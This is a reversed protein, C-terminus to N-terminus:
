FKDKGVEPPVDQHPIPMFAPVGWLNCGKGGINEFKKQLGRKHFLVSLKNTAASPSRFQQRGLYSKFDSLRFWTIGEETWPKGLTLEKKARAQVPGTLWRELQEWIQGEDSSDVPADIEISGALAAGVFETWADQKPEAPMQNIVEMCRKQFLRPAQLEETSLELTRGDTTDWFWVPPDVMLKRLQGMRPFSESKSEAAQDDNGARGVGYARLRCVSGECHGLMPETKCRYFYRRRGGM